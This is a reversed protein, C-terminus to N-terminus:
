TSCSPSDPIVAAIGIVLGLALAVFYYGIEEQTIADSRLRITSPVAFLGFGVAIDAREPLLLSVVTFVGVNVAIYALRLDRRHCVPPLLDRVRAHHDGLTLPSATCSM